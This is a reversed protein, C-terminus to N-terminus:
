CFIHTIHSFLDRLFTNTRLIFFAFKYLFKQQTKGSIFKKIRDVVIASNKQTIRSTCSVGSSLSWLTPIFDQAHSFKYIEDARSGKRKKKNSSTIFRSM